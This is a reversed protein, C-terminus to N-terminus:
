GKEAVAECGGMGCSMAGSLRRVIGIGSISQDTGHM